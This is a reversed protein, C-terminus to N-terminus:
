GPKVATVSYDQADWLLRNLREFISALRQHAAPSLGLTEPEPLAPLREGEAFPMTKLIEVQEFGVLRILEALYDPDIAQKHDLDRYYSKALVALTQPNLTELVLVGGPALKEFALRLLALAEAPFLHEIVQAAFVGGLSDAEVSRLATLADMERVHLGRGRAAEVMGHEIECGWAEIEEGRLMELFEGRGCGIDLIQGPRNRFRELYAHHRGRIEEFPGRFRDTLALRDTWPLSEFFPRLDYRGFLEGLREEIRAARDREDDLRRSLHDILALAAENFLAQREMVHDVYPRSAWHVFKKVPDILRRLVPRHSRIRYEAQVRKLREAAQRLRAGDGQPDGQRVVPVTPESKARPGAEFQEELSRMIGEITFPEEPITFPM